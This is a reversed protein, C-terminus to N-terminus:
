IGRQTNQNKKQESIMTRFSKQKPVKSKISTGLNKKDAFTQASQVFLAFIKKDRKIDEISYNNSSSIEPHFQFTRIPAGFQSETAEIENHKTRATVKLLEKKDILRDKGGIEQVINGHNGFFKQTSIEQTDPNIKILSALESTPDVVISDHEHKNNGLDTIKGKLYANIIQHGGCIGMIPMGREIAVEVMIMEALSRAFDSQDSVTVKGGFQEAVEPDVAVNNGPIVLADKDILLEKTKQKAENILKENINKFINDSQSVIERYDIYEVDGHQSILKDKVSNATAGGVESNYSLSIKPQPPLNEFSGMKTIKTYATERLEEARKILMDSIQTHGLLKSWYLPTYGAKDTINVTSYYNLYRNFIKGNGQQAALHLFTEGSSNTLYLIKDKDKEMLLLIKDIEIDAKRESLFDVINNGNKDVFEINANKDILSKIVDLDHTNIAFFLISIGDKSVQNPNAGKNLLANVIEVDKLKVAEKLIPEGYKDTMNPNAGKNLLANVIDIDYHRMAILLVPNGQKGLINPDVGKELLANLIDVNGENISELILPEGNRDLISPDAGYKLLINVIDLSQNKIAFYLCSNNKEDLTNPTVGAQLLEQVEELNKNKIAKILLEEQINM